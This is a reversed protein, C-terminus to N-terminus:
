RVKGLKKCKRERVQAAVEKQHVERSFCSSALIEGTNSTLINRGATIRRILVISCFLAKLALPLDVSILPLEIAVLNPTFNRKNRIQM